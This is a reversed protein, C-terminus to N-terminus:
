RSTNYVLTAQILLMFNILPYFGTPPYVNEAFRNLEYPYGLYEFSHSKAYLRFLGCEGSIKNKCSIHM